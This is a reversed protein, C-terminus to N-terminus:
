LDRLPHPAYSVLAQGRHGGLPEFSGKAHLRLIIRRGTQRSFREAGELSRWARVPPLIHGRELYRSLKKLSTAHWLVM